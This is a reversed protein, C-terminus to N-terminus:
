MKGYADRMREPNLIKYRRGIEFVMQFFDAYERFNRNALLRQGKEYDMAVLMGSLMACMQRMQVQLKRAQQRPNDSSVLTDVKDTYVSVATAGEVLRLYKRENYTLRVPVFKARDIFSLNGDDTVDADTAAVQLTGSTATESYQQSAAAQIADATLAYAADEALM